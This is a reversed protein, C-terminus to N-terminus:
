RFYQYSEENYDKTDYVRAGQEGWLAFQAIGVDYALRSCVTCFPKGSQKPRGKDDVRIFYLRSGSVKAPNNKLADIIARWEAHVCCTTDYKPKVDSRFTEACKREEVRDLPPANYGMGIIAGDQVIVSGCKSRLCLSKQAVLVAEDFYKKHDTDSVKKM